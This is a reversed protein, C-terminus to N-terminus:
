GGGGNNQINDLIDAVRAPDASVEVARVPVFSTALRTWLPELRAEGPAQATFWEM